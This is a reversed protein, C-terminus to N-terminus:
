WIRCKEFPNMPSGAPCQFAKSFAPFNQLPVNVRFMGLAHVDTDMIYNISSAKVAECWTNAYAIFFLQETSFSPLGPLSATESERSSRMRYAEYAVRLGGNDAINEGITLRGDVNRQTTPELHKSYQNVFCQRKKQFTDLTAEDWWRRLNGYEDYQSGLDDYGHTIEHGIGLGIAAYNVYFPAEPVFMPFQLIAAPFIIENGTFYHFADVAIVPSAWEEKSPHNYLRTLVTRVAARKLQLANDFYRDRTLQVGEFPALVATENLLTDPFGIKHGMKELKKLAASRTAEDMWDTDHLLREMSRKLDMIMEEAKERDEVSFYSTAYATSLPMALNEAVERVCNEWQPVEATAGFMSAQFKQAPVRYQHPLYVDFTSVLRWMMYNNISSLPKSKVLASLGDFYGVDVVNVIMDDEVPGLSARLEENFFLNWRIEPYRRRFDGYSMLNNIASHNRVNDSRSLNAIRREVDIIDNVQYEIMGEDDEMDVGLLQLLSIIYERYHGLFSNSSPAGRYFKKKELFLKPPCFMLIQEDSNEFNNHVFVKILGDVGIVSLQGASIEWHYDASDFRANTLLEWGGLQSILSLLPLTGMDNQAEEDMCSDYYTQALAMPKSANKRPSNELIGRLHLDLDRKMDYLVTVKKAHEPVIRTEAYRGCAFTYFNSCPDTQKNMNDLYMAALRICRESLCLTENQSLPSPAPCTSTTSCSRVDGKSASSASYGNNLVIVLIVSCVAVILTALFLSALVVVIRVNGVSVQKTPRCRETDM